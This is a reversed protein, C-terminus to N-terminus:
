EVLAGTPCADICQTCGGCQDAMPEDPPLELSLAIGALLFWSGYQPHILCTNKAMWGLGAHYAYVREQVHHKDVFVAADFPEDHATADVRRARRAAGVLVVHYDDGWAYRAIRGPARLEAAADPVFYNTGTVIVSRATPLFHRIDARTEASKHMYEMEGAFGRDLWERLRGLEPYAAAAAIGCLDFGLAKARDKIAQASITAM